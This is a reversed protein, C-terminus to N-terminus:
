QHEEGKKDVLRDKMLPNSFAAHDNLFLLMYFVGEAAPRSHEVMVFLFHAACVVSTCYNGPTTLGNVATRYFSM